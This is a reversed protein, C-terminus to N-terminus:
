FIDKLRVILSKFLQSHVERNCSAKESLVFSGDKNEYIEISKEIPDVVWYEKVGSEEYVNMKHRLDYYATGPSLIEMILDPAAEIKTEGIISYREKIIFILDPQYTETESFYVDLPADLVQGSGQEELKLLERELRKSIIQHYPSPAPTM